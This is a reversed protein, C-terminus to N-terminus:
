LMDCQPQVRVLLVCRWYLMDSQPQIGGAWVVLVVVAHSVSASGWGFSGLAGFGVGQTQGPHTHGPGGWMHFIM